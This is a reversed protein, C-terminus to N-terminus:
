KRLNVEKAIEKIADIALQFFEDLSLGIKECERIIERSVAAAFTKNKFKKNLGNADMGELSGRMLAYAHILGTITEACALAHEAKKTRQKDKLGACDFGYGHSMIIEIFDDNFGASRLIEPTKTLHEKPNNKTIGWDVDHLLGLMTWMAEDEGLKKALAKMIAESELYHNFDAKDKNYKKLLELAQERTLPFSKSQTSHSEMTKQATMM